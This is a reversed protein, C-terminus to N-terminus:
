NLSMKPRDAATKGQNAAAKETPNDCRKGAQGARSGTGPRRGREPHGDTQVSPSAAKAPGFRSKSRKEQEASAAWPLMESGVRPFYISSVKSPHDHVVSAALLEEEFGALDRLALVFRHTSEEHVLM